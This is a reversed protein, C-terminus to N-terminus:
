NIYLIIKCIWELKICIYIFMPQERNWPSLKSLIWIATSYKTWVKIWISSAANHIYRVNFNLPFIFNIKIENIETQVCIDTKPQKHNLCSGRIKSDRRHRRANTLRGFMRSDIHFDRSFEHHRNYKIAIITKNSFINM